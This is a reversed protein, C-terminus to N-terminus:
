GGLSALVYMERVSSGPPAYRIQKKERKTGASTVQVCFLLRGLKLSVAISTM